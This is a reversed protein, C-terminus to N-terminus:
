HTMSTAVNCHAEENIRLVEKTASGYDCMVGVGGETGGEIIDDQDTATTNWVLMTSDVGRASASTSIGYGVEDAARPRKGALTNFSADNNIPWRLTARGHGL